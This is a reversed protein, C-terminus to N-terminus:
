ERARIIMEFHLTAGQDLVGHDVVNKAQRYTEGNGFGARQAAIDRSKESKCQAFNQVNRQEGTSTDGGRRGAM